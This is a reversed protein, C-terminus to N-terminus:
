GGAGIAIKRMHGQSATGPPAVKNPAGAPALIRQMPDGFAVNLQMRQRFSHTPAHKNERACRLHSSLTPRTPVLRFWHGPIIERGLRQVDSEEEDGTIQLM